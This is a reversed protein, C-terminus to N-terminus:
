APDLVYDYLTPHRGDAGPWDARYESVRRWGTREYLRMAADGSDVVTLVPLSGDTRIFDVATAMLASGIGRGVATPVVFLRVVALSSMTATGTPDDAPQVAVHGVVTGEVDAVWARVDGGDSTLWRGPDHPWVSPYGHVDHTTRLAAVGGPVDAEARPRIVTAM